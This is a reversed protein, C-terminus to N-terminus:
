DLEVPYICELGRDNVVAITQSAKGRLRKQRTYEDGSGGLSGSKIVKIGAIELLGGTHKHGCLVAYPKFGVWMALKSIGADTLADYDGHVAVYCKDRIWILSATDDWTDVECFLNDCYKLVKRTFWPLIADLRESLSADEKAEMRSHNGSVAHLHVKRFVNAVCLEYIFDAVMESALKIQDIVNEQNSVAISKHISGSIEDGLLVVYVNEVQHREQIEFAEDLYKALREKAIDTDYCGTTTYWCAGIHMDSLCVIMDNKSSIKPALSFHPYREDRIRDFIREFREIKSEFRAEERLRRNIDLREDQLKRREKFLEQRELRISDVTENDQCQKLHADRMRQYSQWRRMITTETQSSGLLTNLIEAVEKWSLDLDMRQSCVRYILDDPTEGEKRKFGYM